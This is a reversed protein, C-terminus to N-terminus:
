FCLTVSHDRKIEAMAIYFSSSSWIGQCLYMPLSSYVLGIPKFVIWMKRFTATQTKNQKRKNLEATQKYGLVKDVQAELQLSKSYRCTYIYIYM